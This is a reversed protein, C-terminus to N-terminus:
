TTIVVGGWVEGHVDVEEGGLDGVGEEKRKHGAIEGSLLTM